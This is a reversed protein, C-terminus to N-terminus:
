GCPHCRAHWHGLKTHEGSLMPLVLCILRRLAHLGKWVRRILLTV